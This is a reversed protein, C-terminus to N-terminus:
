LITKPEKFGNRSKETVTIPEGLKWIPGDIWYSYEGLTYENYNIGVDFLANLM